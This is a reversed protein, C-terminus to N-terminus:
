VPDYSALSDKEVQADANVPLFIVWAFVWILLRSLSMAGKFELTISLKWFSADGCSGRSSLHRLAVNGSEEKGIM